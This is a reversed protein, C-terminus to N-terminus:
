SKKVKIQVKIGDKPEKELSVLQEATLDAKLEYYCAGNKRTTATGEVYQLKNTSFKKTDSVAKLTM